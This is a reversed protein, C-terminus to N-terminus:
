GLMELYKEREEEPLRDWEDSEMIDLPGKTVVGKGGTPRGMQPPMRRTVPAPPRPKRPPGQGPGAPQRKPQLRGQAAEMGLKQYYASEVNEIPIKYALMFEGLEGIEEQSLNTSQLFESAQQQKALQEQEVSWEQKVESLVERFSKKNLDSLYAIQEEATMDALDQPTFDGENLGGTGEAMSRLRSIEQGQQDVLSQLHAIARKEKLPDGGYKRDIWAPPPAPPEEQGTQGQTDEEGAEQSEDEGARSDAYQTQDLEFPPETESAYGEFDDADESTDAVRSDGVVTGPTDEFEEYSIQKPTGDAAM